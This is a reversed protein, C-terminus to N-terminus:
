YKGIKGLKKTAKLVEAAGLASGVAPFGASYNALGAGVHTAAQGPINGVVNAALSIGVAQKLLNKKM